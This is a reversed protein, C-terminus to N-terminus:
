SISSIEVIESLPFYGSKKQLDTQKNLDSCEGIMRRSQFKSRIGERATGDVRNPQAEPNLSNFDTDSEAATPRPEQHLEGFCDGIVARNGPADTPFEM